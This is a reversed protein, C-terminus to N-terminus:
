PPCTPEFPDPHIRLWSPSRLLDRGVQAVLHIGLWTLLWRLFLLLNSLVLFSFSFPCVTFGPSLLPFRKTTHSRGNCVLSVSACPAWASALFPLLQQSLPSLVCTSVSALPRSGAGQRKNAAAVRSACLRCGIPAACPAGKGPIGLRVRSGPLATSPCTSVALGGRCPRSDAWHRPSPAPRHLLPPAQSRPKSSPGRPSPHHPLCSGQAPECFARPAAETEGKPRLGLMSPDLLQVPRAFHHRPPYPGPAGAGGTLVADNRLQLGSSCTAQEECPAALM